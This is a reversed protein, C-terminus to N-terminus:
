LIERVDWEEELHRAQGDSSHLVPIMGGNDCETLFSRFATVPSIYVIQGVRGNKYKVRMGVKISDDPVVPKFPVVNNSNIELKDDKVTIHYATNGIEDVVAVEHKTIQQLYM